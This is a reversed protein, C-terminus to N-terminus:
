AVKSFSQYSAEDSQREESSGTGQHLRTITDVVDELDVRFFERNLTLRAGRRALEAHVQREASACDPFHQKYVVIFPTPVGSVASLERARAEVDRESRGIKVLGAMSANVLVYVYGPARGRIETKAQGAPRDCSWNFYTAAERSKGCIICVDAGNFSHRAMSGHSTRPSLLEPAPHHARAAGDSPVAAQTPMRDIAEQAWDRQRQSARPDDKVALLAPRAAQGSVSLLRQASRRVTPNDNDLGAILYPIAAGAMNELAAAARKQSQESHDGLQAVWCTPTRGEFEPELRWTRRFFSALLKWGAQLREAHV